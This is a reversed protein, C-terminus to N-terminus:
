RFFASYWLVSTKKWYNHIDVCHHRRFVRATILGKTFALKGFHSKLSQGSQLPAFARGLSWLGPAIVTRIYM